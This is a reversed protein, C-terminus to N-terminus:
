SVGHCETTRRVLENMETKEDRIDAAIESFFLREIAELSLVTGLERQYNGKRAIHAKAIAEPANKAWWPAQRVRDSTVTEM